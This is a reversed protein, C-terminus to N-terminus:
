KRPLFHDFAGPHGAMKALLVNISTANCCPLKVEITTSIGKGSSSSVGVAGRHRHTDIELPSHFEHTSKLVHEYGNVHGPLLFLGREDRRPQLRLGDYRSTILNDGQVLRDHEQDPIERVVTNIWAPLKHAVGGDSRQDRLNKM